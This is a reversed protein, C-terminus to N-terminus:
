LPARFLKDKCFCAVHREFDVFVKLDPTENLKNSWKSIIGTAFERRMTGDVVFQSQLCSAASTTSVTSGRVAAVCSVLIFISNWLLISSTPHLRTPLARVSCCVYVPIDSVRPFHATLLVTKVECFNCSSRPPPRLPQFLRSPDWQLVSGSFRRVWRKKFKHPYISLLSILFAFTKTRCFVSTFDCITKFFLM